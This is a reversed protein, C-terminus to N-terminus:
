IILSFLDLAAPIFLLIFVFLLRPFFYQMDWMPKVASFIFAVFIMDIALFYLAPGKFLGFFLLLGCIMEILSSLTIAPKLLFDPFHIKNLPDNFTRLINVIKLNFLKDYGQFFFLIGTVTRILLVAIASNVLESFM